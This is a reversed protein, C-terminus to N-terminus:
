QCIGLFRGLKTWWSENFAEGRVDEPNKLAREVAKEIEADTFLAPVSVGANDAVHVLLYSDNALRHANTNKVVNDLYIVSKPM